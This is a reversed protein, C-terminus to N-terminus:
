DLFKFTSLIQSNIEKNKDEIFFIEYLKEKYEALVYTEGPRYLVPAIACERPSYFRVANIGDLTTNEKQFCKPNFSDQWNASTKRIRVGFKVGEGPKVRCDRTGEAGELFDLYVDSENDICKTYKDGPYKISYGYFNNTYTKWNTTEAAASPEPSVLPTPSSIMNTQALQQKLQYYKYAFVTTTFLPFVIWFVILWKYSKKPPEPEIPTQTFVPPIPPISQDM